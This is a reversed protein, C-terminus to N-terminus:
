AYLCFMCVCVCKERSICCLVVCCMSTATLDTLSVTGAAIVAPKGPSFCCCTVERTICTLLRCTCCTRVVAPLM